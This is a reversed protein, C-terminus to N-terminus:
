TRSAVPQRDAAALESIERELWARHRRWDAIRDLLIGIQRDIHAIEAQKLLVAAQRSAREFEEDSMANVQEETWPPQVLDPSDPLPERIGAEWMAIERKLETLIATAGLRATGSLHPLRAEFEGIRDQTIQYEHESGIM